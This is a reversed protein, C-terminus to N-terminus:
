VVMCMGGAKLLAIQWPKLTLELEGPAEMEELLVLKWVDRLIRDVLLQKSVLKRKSRAAVLGPLRKYSSTTGPQWETREVLRKASGTEGKLGDIVEKFVKGQKINKADSYYASLQQQTFGSTLLRILKVFTTQTVYRPESPDGDNKPRLSEIQANSEETTLTKDEQQLSAVLNPVHTPIHVPEHSEPAPTPPQQEPKPEWVERLVLVDADEGLRTIGGLKASTERIVQGKSRRIRNLPQVERTIKLKTQRARSLAELEDAGDGHSASASFNARRAPAPIRPRVLQAECRLCVFASTTRPALM